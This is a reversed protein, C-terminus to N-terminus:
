ATRREPEPAPENDYKNRHAADEDAPSLVFLSSVGGSTIGDPKNGRKKFHAGKKIFMPIHQEEAPFCVQPNWSHIGAHHGTWQIIIVGDNKFPLSVIKLVVGERVGQTLVPCPLNGGKWVLGM